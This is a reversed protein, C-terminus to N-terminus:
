KRQGSKWPLSVFYVFLSLDFFMAICGAGFKELILAKKKMEVHVIRMCFGFLSFAFAFSRLQMKQKFDRRESKSKMSRQGYNYRLGEQSQKIRWSLNEEKKDLVDLHGKSQAKESDGYTLYNHGFSNSESHGLCM